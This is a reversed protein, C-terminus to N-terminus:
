KYYKIIRKLKRIMKQYFVNYKVLLFNLLNIIHNLINIIFDNKRITIYDCIDHNNKLTIKLNGKKGNLVLKNDSLEINNSEIIFDSLKMKKSNIGNYSYINISIPKDYIYDYLFNEGSTLKVFKINKNNEKFLEIESIGAQNGSTETIKIDIVKISKKSDIKIKEKLSDFLEVEKYLTNDFYIEIKKIRDNIHCPQYIVLNDLIEEKELIIKIRKELDNISPKWYNNLYEAYKKRGNMIDKCDFYMFDNLYSPNDSSVSITSQYLLSDTSRQWFVQDGNIISFAKEVIM